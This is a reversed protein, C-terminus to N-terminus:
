LVVRVLPKRGTICHRIGRDRSTKYIRDTVFSKDAILSEDASLSGLLGVVGSHDSVQVATIFFRPPIGRADKM